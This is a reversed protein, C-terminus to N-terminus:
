FVFQLEISPGHYFVSDSTARHGRTHSLDYDVQGIATGIEELLFFNYGVRLHAKELLSIDAAAGLEYAHSFKTFSDRTQFGVLRDGRVLSVDRTIHNAGLTAKASYSLALWNLPLLHGEFGIQPGLIQNRVETRYVASVRPDGVRRFPFGTQSFVPINQDMTPDPNVIEPFADDRTLYSFSEHLHFYRVGLIGELPSGVNTWFRLNAEGGTFSSAFRLTVLDAQRFLGNNGEFGAPANQFPLDLLSFSPGFLAAVGAVAKAGANAPYTVTTGNLPNGAPPTPPPFGRPTNPNQQLPRFINQLQITPDVNVAPSAVSFSSETRVVAFGNVELGAYEGILMAGGRVGWALPTELASFNGLHPAGPPPSHGDDPIGTLQFFVDTPVPFTQAPGVVGNVVPTVTAVVPINVRGFVFRPTVDVAAVSSNSIAKRALAISGLSFQIDVTKGPELAQFASDHGENLSLDPGPGPPAALPSIPGEVLPLNLPPAKAAVPAPEPLRAAGVPQPLYQANAQQGLGLSAALLALRLWTKRMTGDRVRVRHLDSTEDEDLTMPPIAAERSLITVALIEPFVPLVPL